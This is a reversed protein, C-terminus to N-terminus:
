TEKLVFKKYTPNCAWSEVVTITERHQLIVRKCEVPLQVEIVLSYKGTFGIVM